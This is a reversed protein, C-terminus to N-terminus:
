GNLYIFLGMLRSKDKEGLNARSKVQTKYGRGWERVGLGLRKIGTGGELRKGKNNGRWNEIKRRKELFRPEGGAGISDM